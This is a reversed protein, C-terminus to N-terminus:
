HLSKKENKSTKRTKQHNKIIKRGRTRHSTFFFKHIKTPSDKPKTCCIFDSLFGNALQKQFRFKRFNLYKQHFINFKEFYILFRKTWFIEM